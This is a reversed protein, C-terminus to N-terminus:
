SRWEEGNGPKREAPVAEVDDGLGEGPDGFLDLWVVDFAEGLGHHAVDLRGGVRSGAHEFEEQGDDAPFPYASKLETAHSIESCPM